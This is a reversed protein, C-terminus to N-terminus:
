RIKDQIYAAFEKALRTGEQLFDGCEPVLKDMYRFCTTFLCLTPVAALIFVPGPNAFFMDGFHFAAVLASLPMGWYFFRAATGLPYYLLRGIHLFWAAAGAAICILFSSLTVDWAFRPFYLDAITNMVHARYDFTDVFKRGMPTQQYLEWMMQSLYLLGTCLLYVVLVLFVAETAAGILKRIYRAFRSHFAAYRYLVAARDAIPHELIRRKLIYYKAFIEPMDIGRFVLCRGTLYRTLHFVAKKPLIGM